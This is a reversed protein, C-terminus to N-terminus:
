VTVIESNVAMYIKEKGEQTVNIKSEIELENLLRYFSSRSVLGQEDVVIERLQLGSIREYKQITKLLIGKIYEKSNRAVNRVIKDRLNTSQPRVPQAPAVPQQVSREMKQSIEHLKELLKTHTGELNESQSQQDKGELEFVKEEMQKVRELVPELSYHNDILERIEEKNKPMYMLQQRLDEIIQQQQQNQGHLFRLWEYVNHVDQRVQNFSHLLVQHMQNQVEKM